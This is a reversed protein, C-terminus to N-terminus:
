TKKIFENKCNPCSVKLKGKNKPLKIYVKCKPCKCYVTTKRNKWMNKRLIFWKNIKGKIQLYKNREHSRKEIDKSFCRFLVVAGILLVGIYIYPTFLSAILLIFYVSMLFKSLEDIGYRGCMFQQFKMILEALRKKM